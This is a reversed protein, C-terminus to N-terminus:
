FRELINNTAKKDKRMTPKKVADIFERRAQEKVIKKNKAIKACGGRGRAKKRPQYDVEPPKVFLLKKREEIKEKLSPVNVESVLSPELSILEPQIKELLAHVEHERRQSKSIFPNLELADFSAEGSGPVLMSSFGKATSVGLVDEFPCFVVNGIPFNYRNRMYSKKTGTAYDKYVEVINGMGLALMNTQSFALTNACAALKYSHVPGSLQRIDWIKLERDSSSTAMYRGKPDVHLGLIPAGHCLMKALPDRSNPSWMSVVGKSHGVCLVANWPNQAMVSLRGLKSNFQNVLKGISIDLWSLYGEDSCTALLFHYPLFEMKSVKNMRKICHLEIGQNDYIYVWNKQAVAFMTELHLFCVDHVTEMVNFECHLKKTVWDFAAVHGKKGGLVLHRGNRTYNARYPGFELRLDFQKCQSTIDVNDAIQKQTIQTSTEGADVELCGAQETLLIETKEALEKSFKINQEKKEIKKQQTQGGKVYKKIVQEPVPLREKSTANSKNKTKSAKTVGAKFNKKFKHKKNLNAHYTVVDATKEATKEGSENETFYRTNAKVM